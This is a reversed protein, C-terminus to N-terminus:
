HTPLVAPTAELIERLKIAFATLTFPKQLYGYSPGAGCALNAKEAYGSVYLVRLNPYRPSLISVLEEGGIRPMVLDTILMQIPKNCAVAVRLADEGDSAEIVDYGLQRLYAANISRLIKEDEVLLITETGSPYDNASESPTRPAPVAEEIRPLFIEFLSGQGVESQVRIFGGSQRVVGYCTALGLGTGRGVEKTTFFPEFLHKQVEGSMGSGTDTVALVVHPGPRAGEYNGAEAPSLEVNRTELTLTGGRPMADRANVALNMIVQEIQTRDVKVCGLAREYRSVLKIDEGILSRLLTEMQRALENLDLVHPQILQKRAFALLQATLAAARNASERINNLHGTKKASAALAPEDAVLAEVSSLVVTLLNNFDHAIGGALRGISEMKQAQLLQEELKRKDTVDILMAILLSDGPVPAIEMSLLVERLEGDKRRLRCLENMVSGKDLLRKIVAARDDPNAWFGLEKVTRGLMEERDYGLLECLKDNADLMRGDHITNIGMAAPSSHFIKFFRTRSDRLADEREKIATIDRAIMVASSLEGNRYVPGIINLYVASKGHPGLSTSEYSKQRGDTFFEDYLKKQSERREPAVYDLLSSRLVDEMKLQPLIRNIYLIRYNRDFEIIYDPASDLLSRWREDNVHISSLSGEYATLKSRLTSVQERLSELESDREIKELSM